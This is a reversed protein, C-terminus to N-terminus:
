LGEFPDKSNILIEVKLALIPNVLRYNADRVDKTSADYLCGRLM